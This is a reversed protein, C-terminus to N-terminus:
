SPDPDLPSFFPFTLLYSGPSPMLAEYQMLHFSYCSQKPLYGPSRKANSIQIHFEYEDNVQCSICQKLLVHLSVWITYDTVCCGKMRVVLTLANNRKISSYVNCTFFSLFFRFAPVFAPLLWTLFFLSRLFYLCKLDEVHFLPLDFIFLHVRM